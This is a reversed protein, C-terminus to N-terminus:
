NALAIAMNFTAKCAILDERLEKLEPQKFDWKLRQWATIPDKGHAQYESIITNIDKFIWLCDKLVNSLNGSVAQEVLGASCEDDDLLNQLTGLVTYFEQLDSTLIQIHKPANIIGDFNSNLKRCATYAIAVLTILGSALGVAEAMM